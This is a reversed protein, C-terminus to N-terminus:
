KWQNLKEGRFVHGEVNELDYERTTVLPSIELTLSMFAFFYPEPFPNPFTNIIEWGDNVMIEIVKENGGVLKFRKVKKM